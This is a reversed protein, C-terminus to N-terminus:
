VCWHWSSIAFDSSSRNQIQCHETYTEPLGPGGIEAVNSVLRRWHYSDDKNVHDKLAPPPWVPIGTSSLNFHTQDSVYVLMYCGKTFDCDFIWTWSEEEILGAGVSSKNNRTDMVTLMVPCQLTLDTVFVLIVVNFKWLSLRLSFALSSSISDYRSFLIFYKERKKFFGLM